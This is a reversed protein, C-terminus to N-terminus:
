RAKKYRQMILGAILQFILWAMQFGRVLLYTQGFTMDRSVVFYQTLYQWVVNGLVKLLFMIILSGFATRNTWIKLSMNPRKAWTGEWIFLLIFFVIGLCFLGIISPSKWNNAVRRALVLPLLTM